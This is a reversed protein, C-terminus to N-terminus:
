QRTQDSGCVEDEALEAFAELDARKEPPLDAVATGRAPLGTIQEVLVDTDGEKREVLVPKLLARAMRDLVETLGEVSDACVEAGNQTWGKCAGAADYHVEHILLVSDEGDPHRIVRHDWTGCRVGTEPIKIEM